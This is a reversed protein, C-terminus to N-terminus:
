KRKGCWTELQWSLMTRRHPVALPFLVSVWRYKPSGFNLQRETTVNQRSRGVISSIDEQPKFKSRQMASHVLTSRLDSRTDRTLILCASTESWTKPLFASWSAKLILRSDFTSLHTPKEEADTTTRRNDQSSLQQDPINNLMSYSAGACRDWYMSRYFKLWYKYLLILLNGDM